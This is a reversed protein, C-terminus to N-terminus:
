PLIVGNGDVLSDAEQVSKVLRVREESSNLLNASLLSALSEVLEINLSIDKLLHM